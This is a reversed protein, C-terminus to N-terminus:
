SDFFGLNIKKKFYNPRVIFLDTDEAHNHNFITFVRYFYCNSRYNAIGADVYFKLHNRRSNTRVPLKFYILSLLEPCDMSGNIINLLFTLDSAERRLTLPLLHQQKCNIEYSPSLNLRCKYNLFRLFKKQVGEIKSIYLQYQPNWVQSAYELHSRVLSCYLIKLSKIMKFHKTSRIIFGLMKIAKSTIADVHKDYLLKSDLIVGLDRISDTRILSQQNLRYDFCIINKSRSFSICNCKSVNLDLKNIHCYHQLRDLDQQLLLCDNPAQVKKYIKMDDAFLLFKSHHFCQNIDNVFLVFLLPGLISGQPVGSPVASFRPHSSFGNLVVTQSRQEVYSGFWRLLDGHIGASHLKNLLIIHDIRDFAKTYDTYVADVQGGSQMGSTVDETFAVLNSVTSRGSLFGHQEPLFTHKLAKYIQQHIIKELVKILVCLKSIPRYNSVERKPGKKHIPTVIATKWVKPINAEMLSRRYLLCVPLTLSSACKSILLPHLGDPGASKSGDLNKLLTYVQHEVIEISSIDPSASSVSSPMHLENLDNPRINNSALDSHLFNSNFFEAFADCIGDGSSLTVGKYNMASPYSNHQKNSRIYSWFARPNERISLEINKTYNIFCEQELRNARQRLVNFSASHSKNGYTRVKRHFKNKEKLVRILASSYWAPYRGPQLLKFPVYKDRLSRLLNNFLEVADDVTGRSLLAQWDLDDLEHCLSIFDGKSYFFKPRSQSKLTPLDIFNPQCVLAPHYSDEPVLPNKCHQVTLDGSSFILDLIGNSNNRVHNYQHFDCLNMLYNLENHNINTSHFTPTLYNVENSSSWSVDSLNFDGAIFFFDQPSSAYVSSVKETFNSLQSSFSLGQNQQCLYLCGIHVTTVKKGLASIKISVWIDEATSHWEPRAHAALDHRVAILVGGGRSQGVNSYDRDRRWVAYMDSFLEADNIGDLLWSETLLVIDYNHLQVNRKFQVTKTRLGRVNQYYINVM